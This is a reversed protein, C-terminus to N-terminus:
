PHRPHADSEVAGGRLWGGAPDSSSDPENPRAPTAGPAAGLPEQEWTSVADDPAVILDRGARLEADARLYRGHRGKTDVFLSELRTMVSTDALHYGVIRGDPGSILVDDV